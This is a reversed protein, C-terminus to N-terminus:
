FYHILVAFWISHALNGSVKNEGGLSEFESGKENSLREISPQTEYVAEAKAFMNEVNSAMPSADKPPSSADDAEFGNTPYTAHTAIETM